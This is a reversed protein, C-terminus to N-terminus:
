LRVSYSSVEDAEVGGGRLQVRSVNVSSYREDDVAAGKEFGWRQENQPATVNGDMVVGTRNRALHYASGNGGNALWWTGDGWGGITWFVSEDAVDGRLMLPSIVGKADAPQSGILANAGGEQTRLVFTTTNLPFVQWRQTANDPAASAFFTAGATGSRSFLNTSMLLSSPDSAISLSYWANPDMTPAAM